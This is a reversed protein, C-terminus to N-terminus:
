DAIVVTNRGARKARYLAQDSASRWASISTNEYFAVGISITIEIALSDDDTIICQSSEISNRLRQTILEIEQANSALVIIAFEEGGIRYVDETERLCASLEGCVQKLVQDGILHGYQDNVHKFHDIDITILASSRDLIEDSDLRVLLDEFAKRSFAGTLSDINAAQKHIRAVMKLQNNYKERARSGAYVMGITIILSGIDQFFRELGVEGWLIFGIAGVLSITYFAANTSSMTFFLMTMGSYIWNMQFPGHVMIILVMMIGIIAAFLLRALRLSIFLATFFVGLMGALTIANTTVLDYDGQMVRLPIFVVVVITTIATMVFLIKDNDTLRGRLKEVRSKFFNLVTTKNPM